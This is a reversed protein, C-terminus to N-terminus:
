RPPDERPRERLFADPIWYDNQPRWGTERAMHRFFMEELEKARAAHARSGSLDRRAEPDQDLRYYEFVAGRRGPRYVLREQDVQMLRDRGVRTADEWAPDVCWHGPAHRDEMLLKVLPPHLSWDPPELPLLFPVRAEVFVLGSEGGPPSLEIRSGEWGEPVEVGAWGAALSPVDVARVPADEREVSPRLPDRWLLPAEFLPGNGLRDLSAEEKASLATARPSWLIVATSRDLRRRRLGELLAALAAKRARGRRAWEEPGAAQERLGDWSPRAIDGAALRRAVSPSVAEVPFSLCSFHVWLFFTSRNRFSALRAEAERALLAPDALARSGRLPPFLRRGWAGGLYPLLHPSRELARRALRARLSDGAARAEDFEGAVRSFYGHPGDSLVATYFGRRRLLGALTEPGSELDRAAPFEHRVQHVLPSRGTLATALTPALDPSPPVCRAWVRSASALETFRPADIENELDGSRLGDVSIL